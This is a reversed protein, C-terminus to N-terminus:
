NSIDEPRFKFKRAIVRGIDRSKGMWFKNEAQTYLYQAKSIHRIAKKGDKLKTYILALNLHMGPLNPDMEQTKLLIPLAKDHQKDKIYGSGLLNLTEPDNPEMKVAEKLVAIADKTLGVRIYIEGIVKYAMPTKPNIVIAKRALDLASDFRSVQYNVIAQVLLPLSQNPDIELARQAYGSALNFRRLKVYGYSMVSLAEADNPDKVILEYVNTIADEYNKERILELGKVIRPRIQKGPDIQVAIEKSVEGCATLFVLSLIIGALRLTKPCIMSGKIDFLGDPKQM